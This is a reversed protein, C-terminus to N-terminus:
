LPQEQELSHSVLGVAKRDGEMTRSTALGHGRPNEFADRAKTRSPLLPEEVLVSRDVCYAVERKALKLILCPEGIRHRTREESVQM